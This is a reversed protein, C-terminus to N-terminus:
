IDAEVALVYGKPGALAAAAFAFLGLNAGIDWVVAGPKVLRRIAELLRPDIKRLDHRWYRLGGIHPSVYITNGGFDIPLRRKLEVGRSLREAITKLFLGNM